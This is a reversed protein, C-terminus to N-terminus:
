RRAARSRRHFTRFPPRTAVGVVPGVRGARAPSAPHGCPGCGAGAPLRPGGARQGGRGQQLLQLGWMAPGGPCRRSSASATTPWRRPRRLRRRCPGARGSAGARAHRFTNSCGARSETFWCRRHELCGTRGAVDIEVAPGDDGSLCRLRNALERLATERSNPGDVGVSGARRAACAAAARRRRCAGTSARRPGLYTTKPALAGRCAGNGAPPERRRSRPHRRRAPTPRPDLRASEAATLVGNECVASSYGTGILAALSHLDGSAPHLCSGSCCSPWRLLWRLTRGCTPPAVVRGPRGDNVDEGSQLAPIGTGGGSMRHERRTRTELGNRSWAGASVPEGRPTPSDACGAPPINRAANVDRDHVPAVPVFGSGCTCLSPRASRGACRARGPHLPVVPGGEWVHRGPSPLGQLRADGRVDVLGRRGSVPRPPHPGPGVRGSLDEVYVAEPERPDVHHIAQAALGVRTDAVRAHARAVKRRSSRVPEGLADAPPRTGEARPAAERRGEARDRPNDVKRGDSLVAFHALGLDM